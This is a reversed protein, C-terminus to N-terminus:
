DRCYGGDIMDDIESPLGAKFGWKARPASQYIQKGDCNTGTEIVTWVIGSGNKPGLKSEAYTDWESYSYGGSYPITCESEDPKVVCKTDVPTSYQKLTSGDESYYHVKTTYIYTSAVPAYFYIRHTYLWKNGSGTIKNKDESDYCNVVFGRYTEGCAVKDYKVQPTTGPTTDTNDGTKDETKEQEKTEDEGATANTWGFIKKDPDLDSLVEGELKYKDKLWLKRTDIYHQGAPDAPILSGDAALLFKFTDPTKGDCAPEGFMCNSSKKSPDVDIYIDTQYSAKKDAINISHEKQIVWWRMGNSTIFSPKDPYNTQSCANESGANMSFALLNCLKNDGSYEDKNYPTKIPKSNNFFPHSNILIDQGEEIMVAPYLSSNASLSKIAESLEDKAKLYMIKTKDPMLNNIAPLLVAATIGTIGLVILLEALTFGKKM